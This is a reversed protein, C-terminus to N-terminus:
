HHDSLSGDSQSMDEMMTAPLIYKFNLYGFLVTLTSLVLSQLNAPYLVFYGLFREPNYNVDRM